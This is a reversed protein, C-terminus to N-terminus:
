APANGAFAAASASCIATAAVFAIGNKNVHFQRWKAFAAIRGTLRRETNADLAIQLNENSISKRIRARFQDTNM